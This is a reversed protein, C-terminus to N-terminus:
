SADAGSPEPMPTGDWAIDAVFAQSVSVHEERAVTSWHRRALLFYLNPLVDHADFLADRGHLLERVLQAPPARHLHRDLLYADYQRVLGPPATRLEPEQGVMAEVLWEGPPFFAGASSRPNCEIMVLGDDARRYDFGIHGTFGLEGAVRQAVELSGFDDVTAFQISWGGPGTVRPEYAVHLLVQGDRAVSYSCADAGEVYEQVLWPNDSIPSCDELRSEGARPGHNTLYVMGGRSFAPRAVFDPFQQVADALEASDGAVITAPTRLGLRGCLEVFRSKDHLGALVPFPPAFIPAPVVDAYRAIFFTDEFSPLVLDIGRDAVVAAVDHAFREPERAPAAVLHAKDARNSHLAPAMELSDAVDVRAGADHFARVIATAPPFRGCLVLVSLDDAM